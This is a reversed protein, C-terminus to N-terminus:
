RTEKVVAMDKASADTEWFDQDEHFLVDIYSHPLVLGYGDLLAAALLVRHCM